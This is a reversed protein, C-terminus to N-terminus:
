GKYLYIKHDNVRRLIEYRLNCLRLIFFRNGVYTMNSEEGESPFLKGTAVPIGLEFNEQSCPLQIHMSQAPCVSMEAFGGSYLKDIYFIDWMLRRRSERVVASLGENEYNLRLIYAVKVAISLICQTKAYDKPTIILLLVQVLTVSPRDLSKLAWSEAEDRWRAARKESQPDTSIFASSLCCIAQLLATHIKRETWSRLLVARHIFGRGPTCAVYEFFAHIHKTIM